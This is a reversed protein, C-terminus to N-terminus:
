SCCLVLSNIHFIRVYWKKFRRRRVARVYFVRLLMSRIWSSSFKERMMDKPQNIIKMKSTWMNDIRVSWNNSFYKIQAKYWQMKLALAPFLVAWKMVNLGRKTRCRFVIVALPEFESLHECKVSNDSPVRRAGFQHGIYRIYTYDPCSKPYNM